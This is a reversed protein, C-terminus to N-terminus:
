EEDKEGGNRSGGRGDDGDDGAGSLPQEGSSQDAPEHALFGSALGTM